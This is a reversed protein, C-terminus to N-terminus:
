SQSSISCLFWLEKSSLLQSDKPFRHSQMLYLLNIVQFNNIMLITLVPFCKGM